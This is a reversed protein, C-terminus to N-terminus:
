SGPSGSRPSARSSRAKSAPRYRAQGSGTTRALLDRLAERLSEADHGRESPVKALCQVVLKSLAPNARPNLERPDRPPDTAVQQMVVLPAGGDFPPRGTLGAYLTAALSYIDSAPGIRARDGLAQEPSMYAPTGVVEGTVTLTEKTADNLFQAIGFDTLVARGTRAELLVNHPKLDRHVLGMGHAYHLADAIQEGIRILDEVVLTGEREIRAQLSEGEVLELVLFPHGQHTDFELVGVVHPHRLRFTAEAERRFRETEEPTTHQALLVKIAVLTGRVRHRARYVVGAGGRALEREVEYAGIEM